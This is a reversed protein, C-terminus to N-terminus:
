LCSVESGVEAWSEHLWGKQSMMRKCHFTNELVVREKLLVYINGLKFSTTKVDLDAWQSIAACSFEGSYRDPLKYKKTIVCFFVLSSCLPDQFIM